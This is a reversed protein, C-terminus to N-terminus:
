FYAQITSVIEETEVEYKPEVAEEVEGNIEADLNYDDSDNFDNKTDKADVFNPDSVMTNYSGELDNEYDINVEVKYVDDNGGLPFKKPCINEETKSRYTYKKLEDDYQLDIITKPVVANLALNSNLGIQDRNVLKM